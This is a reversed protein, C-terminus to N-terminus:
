ADCRFYKGQWLDNEYLKKDIDNIVSVKKRSWDPALLDDGMGDGTLRDIVTEPPLLTLAKVVLDIYHARELPTYAGREYIEGLRSSRLVHLLHLKVHDPALAALERVSRLMIEDDEGPLGFILHVCIEINKSASRLKKYGKIFQEYTHGRNIRRATDDNTTQLGLEVTLATRDALEALYAVVDDELCDARTAVNLGVVGPLAVAEEFLPRIVSLPAYTNTHAQFYPICRETSWKAALKERAICYQESVSLGGGAAFDGSGRSSCYICGGIGCRGDINPCTFGADIPIKACKGGHKNRLYYEYTYYRKNSDSYPFPNNERQTGKMSEGMVSIGFALM